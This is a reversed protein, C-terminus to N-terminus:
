RRAGPVVACGVMLAGASELLLFWPSIRGALSTGAAVLGVGLWVVVLRVATV